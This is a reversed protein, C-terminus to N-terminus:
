LRVDRGALHQVWHQALWVVPSVGVSIGRYIVIVGCLAVIDKVTAALNFCAESLGKSQPPSKILSRSEDHVAVPSKRKVPPAPSRQSRAKPASPAPPTRPVTKVVPHTPIYEVKLVHPNFRIAKPSRSGSHTGTWSNSRKPRPQHYIIDNDEDAANGTWSEILSDFKAHRSVSPRYKLVSKLSPLTACPAQCPPAPKVKRSPCFNVARPPAFRKPNNTPYENLLCRKM